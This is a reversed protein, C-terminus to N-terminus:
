PNVYHFSIIKTLFSDRDISILTPFSNSIILQIPEPEYIIDQYVVGPRQNNRYHLVTCTLAGQAHRMNDQQYLDERYLYAISTIVILKHIQHCQDKRSGEGIILPVFFQVGIYLIQGRPYILSCTSIVTVGAAGAM